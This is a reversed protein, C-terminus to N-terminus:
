YTEVTQRNIKIFDDSVYDFPVHDKYLNFSLKIDNVRVCKMSYYFSEKHFVSRDSTFIKGM